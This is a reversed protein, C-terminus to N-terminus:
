QGERLFLLNFSNGAGSGQQSKSSPEKNEDDSSAGGAELSKKRYNRNKTKPKLKPFSESSTANAEPPKDKVVDDGKEEKGLTKQKKFSDDDSSNESKEVSIGSDDKKMQRKSRVGDSEKTDKANHNLSGKAVEQAGDEAEPLSVVKSEKDGVDSKKEDETDM